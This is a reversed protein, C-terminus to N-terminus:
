ISDVMLFIPAFAFEISKIGENHGNPLFVFCFFVLVFSDEHSVKHFCKLNFGGKAGLLNIIKITNRTM